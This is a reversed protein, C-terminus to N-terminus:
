EGGCFFKDLHITRTRTVNICRHPLGLRAPRRADHFYVARFEGAHDPDPALVPNGVLFDRVAPTDRRAHWWVDLDAQHNPPRAARTGFLRKYQYIGQSLWAEVGGFDVHRIGSRCAWEMILHHIARPAGIEYYGRAGDLVGALRLTLTREDGNWRCLIGAVRRGELTAFVVLGRRFLCEYARDKPESRTREGHRMRMTPVHMRDYLFHFAEDDFAPELGWDRRGRAASFWQREKTSVRRRWEDLDSSLDVVMHLRYPLTLSARGPLRAAQAPTCAVAVLDAPPLWAGSLLGARNVDHTRRTVAGGGDGRLGELTRHIRAVGHPVGVYGISPGGAEAASDVATFRRLRTEVATRLRVLRRDGSYDWAFGARLRLRNLPGAFPPSSPGAPRTGADDVM